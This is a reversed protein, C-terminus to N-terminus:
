SVGEPQPNPSVPILRYGHRAAQKQLRSLLHQQNQGNDLKSDDYPERTTIIHYIVRALKHAAATIGEPGGLKARMRRCFDGLASQSRILGQAAMRLARAVRNKRKRTRSRLIKGGSKRNDPCLALWSAFAGASEFAHFDCGVETFLTQATLVSIGPIQTLDVGFVKYLRSRLDFDPEYSQRAKRSKSSPPLPPLEDTPPEWHDLYQKIEQECAGILKQYHRWAELAQGLTFLHEPRWDGVLSRAVVEESVKIRPDRFKALQQPNREGALIAEVIALGTCGTVDSIVHHLQVNMQDLAKHMHLVHAAAMELLDNRHRWLSRIACVEDAPRFSARLLGASHLYQLWQCDAVDTKRGPVNKVHQANVLCVRLGRSALIQFLPVWYVGTSEMAVTEIGCAELWDSLRNLDETFTPFSQVPRPDRDPPVAVHIERAGIDAGAANPEVVRFVPAPGKKRNKKQQAKSSM